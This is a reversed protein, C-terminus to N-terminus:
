INKFVKSEAIRYPFFFLLHNEPLYESEKQAGVGGQLVIPPPRAPSASSRQIEFSNNV